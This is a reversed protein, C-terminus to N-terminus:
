NGNLIKDYVTECNILHDSLSLLMTHYGKIAYSVQEYLGPKLEPHENTIEIEQQHVSGKPIFFLKELPRLSYKGKDTCIDVGWRGASEWNADYNFLVNNNTIGAGTFISGNPHWPLSGKKYCSLQTPLGALYIFLDIVHTSNGYYWNELSAKPKDLKEIVHGWETFEFHASSIKESTLITKLKTVSPFHRRNYAIYFYIKKDSLQTALNRVEMSNLGAPKESLISHINTNILQSNVKALNEFSVANIAMTFPQITLQEIPTDAVEVANEISFKMCNEKTRGIVTFPIGTKKLVKVYEAAMPGTGFLLIHKIINEM